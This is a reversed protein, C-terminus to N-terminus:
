RAGGKWPSGGVATMDVEDSPDGEGVDNKRSSAAFVAVLACLAGTKAASRDRRHGRPRAVLQSRTPWRDRWVSRCHIDEDRRRENHEGVSSVGRCGSHGATIWTVTHRPQAAPGASIAPMALMRLGTGSTHVLRRRTPLAAPRSGARMRAARDSIRSVPARRRERRFAATGGSGPPERSRPVTIRTPDVALDTTHKATWALVTYADDLAAPFRHEPARRYGVSIVVAGSGGSGGPLTLDEIQLDATHLAPVSAALAALNDRATVPDTLDAPPFLSLFPELEPDMGVM